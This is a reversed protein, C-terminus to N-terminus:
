YPMAMDWEWADGLGREEGRTEKGVSYRCLQEESDGEPFDHIMAVDMGYLLQAEELDYGSEPTTDTSSGTSVLDPVASFMEDGSGHHTFDFFTSPDESSSDM